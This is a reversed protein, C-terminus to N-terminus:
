ITMFLDYIKVIKSSFDHFTMIKKISANQDSHCFPTLQGKERKDHFCYM